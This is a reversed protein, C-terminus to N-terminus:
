KIEKTALAVGDRGVLVHGSADAALAEIIRDITVSIIFQQGVHVPNPAIVAGSIYIDAM